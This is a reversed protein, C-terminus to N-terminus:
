SNDSAEPQEPPYARYYLADSVLAVLDPLPVLTMWWMSRGPWAVDSFFFLILGALSGVVWVTSPQYFEIKVFRQFSVWVNVTLVMLWILAVIGAMGLIFGIIIIM